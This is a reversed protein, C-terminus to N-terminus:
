RRKKASRKPKGKSRKKKAAVAKGRPQGKGEFGAEVAELGKSTLYSEAGDEYIYGLQVASVFDRDYNQPPTLRAKAFYDRLEARAFRPQGEIKERYYAFLALRQANTSPKKQQILEAPSLPRIGAVATSRQPVVSTTAPQAVASASVAQPSDMGLLSLASAIVRNRTLNDLSELAEYIIKAVEFPSKNTSKRTSM